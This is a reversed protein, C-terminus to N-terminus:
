QIVLSLKTTSKKFKNLVLQILQQLTRRDKSKLIVKMYFQNRMKYPIEKLPGYFKIGMTKNLLEESFLAALEEVKRNVMEETKARLVLTASSWYPPLKFQMRQDTEMCYFWEPEHRLAQFPYYDTNLTFLMLEERAANKLRKLLLFMEYASRYDGLSMQSDLGSVMVLDASINMGAELFKQTSVLVDWQEPVGGSDTSLSVIKKDPFFKRLNEEVREVGVGLPKLRKHNCEPCRELLKSKRMCKGCVYEGANKDYRLFSDCHDCKLIAKCHDCRVLNSFGKKNWFVIVRKDKELYRAILGTGLESFVPYKKFGYNNLDYIVLDSDSYDMCDIHRLKDKELFHYVELSPYDSHLYVSCAEIKARFLAVDRSHFFPTTGQYHGYGNEGEVIILGVEEFPAFLASRTGVCIDVDGVRMAKWVEIQEKPKTSAPLSVLKSDPLREKICSSVYDIDNSNSVVIITKQGCGGVEKIKRAYVDFRKLGYPEEQIYVAEVGSNQETKINPIEDFRNTKRLYTPLMMDFVTGPGCLYHESMRLGLAILGPSFVPYSDLTLLIPKLAYKTSQPNEKLSVVVGVIRRNAFNVVVRMGPRIDPFSAADYDFCKNLEYAVAIEAIM